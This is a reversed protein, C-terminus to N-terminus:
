VGSFGKSQGTYIEAQMKVEPKKEELESIDNGGSILIAAILMLIGAFIIMLAAGRGKGAGIIKGINQSLIGNEKMLPEFIKDALIGSLLYAIIYGIQTFLSILGWVRGQVQNPLRVRVLFDACTNVFPLSAFFIISAPLILFISRTMGTLGMFIGCIVLSIILIKAHNKKIGILSIVIGSILMGLAGATEVLGVTKISGIALLMPTLLIQIFGIFFCMVGMLIILNCVGRDQFIYSIGEKFENFIRMKDRRPKCERISKRVEAAAFVTIFITLIDLVLILSIDFYTLLLGAIAPSILYKVNRAIQILGGAKTYEDKTLLDTITASYSPELLSVFVSNITVGIAIPLIGTSKIHISILIFVLGFASFLDGCIMMLRRDYRDALLGGVPNLLVTPLYALLTIMSVASVKGTSQYVYVSIAFATMGSGINSLFQGAWIKMFNKM